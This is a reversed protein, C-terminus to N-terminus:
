QYNWAVKTVISEGRAAEIRDKVKYGLASTHLQIKKKVQWYKKMIKLGNDKKGL